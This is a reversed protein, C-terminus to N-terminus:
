DRIAIGIATAPSTPPDYQQNQGVLFFRTGAPNLVGSVICDWFTIYIKGGIIAGYFNTGPPDEPESHGRFLNGEQDTIHLVSEETTYGDVSVNQDTVTWTGVLNIPDNLKEEGFAVTTIMLFSLAFFVSLKKM